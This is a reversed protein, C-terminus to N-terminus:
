TEVAKISLNSQSERNTFLEREQAICCFQVPHPPINYMCLTQKPCIGMCLTPKPCNRMNKSKMYTATSERIPFLPIESITEILKYQEIDLSNCVIQM